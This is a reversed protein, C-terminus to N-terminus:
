RVLGLTPPFGVLPVSIHSHRPQSSGVCHNTKWEQIVVLKSFKRGRRCAGCEPGFFVCMHISFELLFHNITLHPLCSSYYSCFFMDGPGPKRDESCGSM